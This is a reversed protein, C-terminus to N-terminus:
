SDSKKHKKIAIVIVIIVVLLLVFILVGIGIEIYLSSSSSSPTYSDSTSVTGTSSGSTSGSIPISSSTSPCSPPNVVLAQASPSLSKFQSCSMKNYSCMSNLMIDDKYGYKVCNKDSYKPCPLPSVYCSCLPDSPYTNCYKFMTSDILGNADNVFTICNPDYNKFPANFQGCYNAKIKFAKTQYLTAWDICAQNNFINSPNNCFSNLITICGSNLPSSYQSSCGSPAPVTTCCESSSPTGSM